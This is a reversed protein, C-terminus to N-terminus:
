DFSPRLGRMACADWWPEGGLKEQLLEGLARVKGPAQGGPPRVLYLGAEPLPYDRLVPELAAADVAEAILFTPLYAVGLGALAAQLVAEGNDARFRGRPNISIWRKGSQFRWVATSRGTNQVLCEHQLLDEPRRPRGHADFYAPTACVAAHIPAIRRAVLTSDALQGLRVAADFREAIIDVFSDSYSVEVELRPHRAALEAFLPALHRLGFSLPAAVRLRGVIEQGHQAVADRAADLDALIQQARLKFEAGAETPSVGRTTRSLLPAGLDAELRALRRSIISKALGLRQAARSFGGTEVVEVFARLDDLEPM